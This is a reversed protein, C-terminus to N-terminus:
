LRGAKRADRLEVAVRRSTDELFLDWARAAAHAAIERADEESLEPYLIRTVDLAAEAYTSLASM